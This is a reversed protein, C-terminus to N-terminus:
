LLLIFFYMLQSILEARVLLLRWNAIHLKAHPYTLGFPFQVFDELKKLYFLDVVDSNRQQHLNNNNNNNMTQTQSHRNENMLQLSDFNENMIQIAEIRKEKDHPLHLMQTIFKDNPFPSQCRKCQCVFGFSSKLWEQRYERPSYLRGYSICVEEGLSFWVVSFFLSLSIFV